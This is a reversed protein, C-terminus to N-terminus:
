FGWLPQGGDHMIAEYGTPMESYHYYTVNCSFGASDPATEAWFLCAELVQDVVEAEMDPTWDELNPDDSGDSEPLFVTIHYSGHAGDPRNARASGPMGAVLAVVVLSLGGQAFRNLSRHAHRDM